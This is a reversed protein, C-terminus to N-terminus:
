YHMYDPIKSMQSDRGMDHIQIGKTDARFTPIGCV